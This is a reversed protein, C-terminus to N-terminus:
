LFDVITRALFKVGGFLDAFFFGFLLLSNVVLVFSVVIVAGCFGLYKKFFGALFFGIAGSSKFAETEEAPFLGIFVSLFIIFFLFSITNIIKNRGLGSFRLIRLKDLGSFFFYFPLFYSARGFIFFLFFGLYAGGAGILNHITKSASASLFTIDRPTFSILSLTILLSIFFLVVSKLVSSLNKM